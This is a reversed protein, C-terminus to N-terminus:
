SVAAKKTQTIEERKIGLQQISEENSMSIRIGAEARRDALL